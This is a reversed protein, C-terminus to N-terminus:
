EAENPGLVNMVQLNGSSGYVHGEYYQAEWTGGEPPIRDVITADDPNSVDILLTGAQYWGWVVKDRGDIVDGFHSGCNGNREEDNLQVYSRMQPNEPDSIDYVWMAATPQRADAAPTDAGNCNSEIHEDNLFLLNGEKNPVAQHHYVISPNDIIGVWQPDTVDESIDWLFTEGGGTRYQTGGGACYAM